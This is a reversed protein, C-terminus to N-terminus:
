RPYGVPLLACPQEGQELLLLNSVATDDFAGVMVSGLKTAAAQLSVNQAAHGVEMHIYREARVAYKGESRAPVAVIVIVAPAAAVAHQQLAAAHLPERLDGALRLRLAHETPLYRYLGAALGEVSGSVLDIELPYLGGASPATRGGDAAVIGQAAWLLQGVTDMALPQASFDRVSRRASLAAEVSCVGSRDPAPLSILPM